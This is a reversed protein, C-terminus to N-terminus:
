ALPFSNALSFLNQSHLFLKCKLSRISSRVYTIFWQVPGSKRTVSQGALMRFPISRFSILFSDVKAAASLSSVAITRSRLVLLLGKSVRLHSLFKLFFFSLSILPLLYFPQLFFANGPAGPSAVSQQKRRQLQHNHIGFLLLAKSKNNQLQVRQSTEMAKIRTVKM